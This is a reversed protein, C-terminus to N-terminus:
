SLDIMRINKIYQVTRDSQLSQLQHIKKEMREVNDNIIKLYMALNVPPEDSFLANTQEKMQLLSSLFETGIGGVFEQMASIRATSIEPQTLHHAKRIREVVNEASMALLEPTVDDRLLIDKVGFKMAETVISFHQEPIILIVPVPIGQDLFLRLTQSDHQVGTSNSIAIVSITKFNSIFDKLGEEASTKRIVVFSAEDNQPLEARDFHSLANDEDILLIRIVETPM